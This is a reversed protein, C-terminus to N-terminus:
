SRPYPSLPVEGSVSLLLWVRLAWGGLVGPSQEFAKNPNGDGYGGPSQVSLATSRLSLGEQLGLVLPKTNAEERLRSPPPCVCACHLQPGVGIDPDRLFGRSPHPHHM